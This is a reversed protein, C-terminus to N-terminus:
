QGGNTGIPCHGSIVQASFGLAYSPRLRAFFAGIGAASLGSKQVGGPAGMELQAAATPRATRSQDLRAPSSSPSERVGIEEVLLMHNIPHALRSGSVYATTRWRPLGRAPLGRTAGNRLNPLRSPLKLDSESWIPPRMTARRNTRDESMLQRKRGRSCRARIARKNEPDSCAARRWGIGVSTIRLPRRTELEASCFV